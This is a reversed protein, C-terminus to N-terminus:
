SYRKDTLYEIQRLAWELKREVEKLRVFTRNKHPNDKPIGFKIPIACDRALRRVAEPLVKKGEIQADAQIKACVQEITLEGNASSTAFAALNTAIRIAEPQTLRNAVKSM